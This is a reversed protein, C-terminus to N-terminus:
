DTEGTKLRELENETRDTRTWTKTESLSISPIQSNESPIRRNFFDGYSLM